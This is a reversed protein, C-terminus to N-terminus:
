YRRRTFPKRSHIAILKSNVTRLKHIELKLQEIESQQENIANLMTWLIPDNNLQLYGSVTRSVAEPLVRQVAQASFGIYEGEGRLGLANNPKYEYRLPELKRLTQLGATFRGKINKLREDSFIQWSGGGIKSADGNVSLVQDTVVTGIGVSGNSLMTMVTGPAGLDFRIEDFGFGGGSGIRLRNSTDALLVRKAVNATNRMNLSQNNDLLIAGGAVHLKALPTSTGIGVNTDSLAGNIGNVSGLVLCNSCNVQALTGLATANNLNPAGVNAKAGIVINGGGSSNNEGAHFGVFTNNDGNLSFQGAATGFFSNNNASSNFGASQGFFANDNGNNAQGSYTGFFSNGSGTSNGLAVDFGFFANNSGTTNALGVQTGFFSNFSGTSNKQGAFSGFFANFSSTTLAGASTGFFANNDGTDNTQGAGHGFFSNSGGTTNFGGSGTGFFSNGSATTNSFGSLYGFFSNGSGTTNSSGASAGFFSNLNATTNAAGAQAGFFSNGAGSSNLRGTLSGFFSNSNATNTQGAGAGFFSNDSGTTNSFGSATGFFSNNSGTSNSFGVNGGFFSNGDGTTNSLGASNGFFSNNNPFTNARGARFGFFSNGGGTTTAAGASEGFFSNNIGNTLSAGSVPGVLFNGTTAPPGTSIVRGGKLNYQVTASVTNGALGGGAVGDGSINFYSNAQQNTGNQIYNSSGSTPPRSDTLRADNAQVYQSAAIGGLQVANTATDANTANGSKVAYPTSTIQQRPTLLIFASAGSMRASIELFRDAGPFAGSGFDLTVTFIGSSVGVNSITQTSGIQSGGSVSDWLGFQLDYNGNAATGGDTLRGQYTFAATQAAASGTLSFLLAILVLVVGQCGKSYRDRFGM